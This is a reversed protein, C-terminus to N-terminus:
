IHNNYGRTAAGDVNLVYYLLVIANIALCGARVGGIAAAACITAYKEGLSAHPPAAVVATNSMAGAAALRDALQQLQQHTNTTSAYVCHVGSGVQGLMADVALTTKGSGDPGIVLFSAGRGLPTLADLARVGTLLCESIQARQAM